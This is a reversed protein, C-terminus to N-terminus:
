RHFGAYLSELREIYNIPSFKEVVTKRAEKGLEMRKQRDKILETIAKAFSEIDSDEVLIGNKDHEVVESIGGINNVVVPVQMYMAELMSLPMGEFRSFLAFIDFIRLYDAIDRRPGLFIVKAAVDTDQIIKDLEQKFKRDANGIFILKASPFTRSIIGFAKILMDQGKRYSLHAVNGIILDNESLGLEKRIGLPNKKLELRETNCANLLLFLRNEPIHELMSISRMLNDSCCIIKDTFISLIRDAWIYPLFKLSRYQYHESHEESIIVPIRALIAAIRGHFNANFLSTQVIDFRNKYFYRLLSLIVTINLPHASKNLCFINIGLGKIEEGIEGIKEICLVTFEYNDKQKLNKLALFRLEEAGGIGLSPYIYLIRIKKNKTSM